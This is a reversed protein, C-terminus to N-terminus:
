HLTSDIAKALVLGGFDYILDRKKTQVDLVRDKYKPALKCMFEQAQKKDTLHVNRALTRAAIEIKFFQM